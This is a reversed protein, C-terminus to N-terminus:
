FIFPIVKVAKSMPGGTIYALNSTTQTNIGIFVCMLLMFTFLLVVKKRSLKLM